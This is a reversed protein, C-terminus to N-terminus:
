GGEGASAVPSRMGQLADCHYRIHFGAGLVQGGNASPSFGGSGGSLEESAKEKEM